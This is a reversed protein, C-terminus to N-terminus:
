SNLMLYYKNMVKKITKKVEEDIPDNNSVNPSPSQLSQIYISINEKETLMKQKAHDSNFLSKFNKQSWSMEERNTKITEYFLFKSFNNELTSKIYVTNM